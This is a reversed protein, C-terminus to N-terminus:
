RPLKLQWQPYTEVQLLQRSFNVMQGIYWPHSHTWGDYLCLFFTSGKLLFWLPVYL